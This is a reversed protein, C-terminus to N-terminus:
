LLSYVSRREVLEVPVRTVTNDEAGAIRGRLAAVAERALGAVDQRIATVPPDLFAL